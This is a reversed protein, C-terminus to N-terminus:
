GEYGQGYHPPGVAIPTGAVADATHAMITALTWSIASIDTCRDLLRSRHNQSLNLSGTDGLPFGMLSEGVEATPSTPRNVEYM